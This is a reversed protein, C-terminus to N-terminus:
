SDPTMYYRRNAVFDRHMSGVLTEWSPPHYGTAERFAKSDLSRDLVVDESPEIDIDKGYRDKILQLLEWKSIPDSSVHYVGNLERHSIVHDRIIQALEITPVGSFIARRFGRVSKTQALFWETLGHGSRLEHGIISTRLTVCHPYKVEGLVKTRGYLDDATPQDHEGYAGKRGDFVCDTSIHVLRAGAARSVLAIRHPLVANVSITALPDNESVLQKTVGICNIVVDPQISALPGVISDIHDAHVSDKWFRGVLGPPFYKELGFPNRATAYVDHESCTSLYRFLMHGLMGTGGLILIRSRSNMEVTARGRTRAHKGGDV